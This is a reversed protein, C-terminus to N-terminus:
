SNQLDELTKFLGVNIEATQHFLKIDDTLNTLKVKLGGISGLFYTHGVEYIIGLGLFIALDEKIKAKSIKAHIESKEQFNYNYKEGILQMLVTPLEIEMDFDQNGFTIQYIDLINIKLKKKITGSLIIEDVAKSKSEIEKGIEKVKTEDKKIAKAKPM